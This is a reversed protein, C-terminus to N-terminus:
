HKEAPEIVIATGIGGKDDFGFLVTVDKAQHCPAFTWREEWADVVKASTPARKSGVQALYDGVAVPGVMKSYIVPLGASADVDCGPFLDKAAARVNNFNDIQVVPLTRTEGPVGLFVGALEGTKADAGILANHRRPGAGCGTATVQARYFTEPPTTPLFRSFVDLRFVVSTLNRDNAPCTPAILADAQEIASMLGPPLKLAAEPGQDFEYKSYTGAPAGSAPEATMSVAAAAFGLWAATDRLCIRTVVADGRALTL